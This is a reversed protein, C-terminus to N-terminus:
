GRVKRFRWCLQRQSRAQLAYWVCHLLVSLGRVCVTWEVMADVGTKDQACKVVGSWSLCGWVMFSVRMCSFHAGYILMPARGECHCSCALFNTILVAETCAKNPTLPICTARPQLTGQASAIQLWQLSCGALRAIVHHVSILKVPWASLM